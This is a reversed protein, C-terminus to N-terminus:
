YKFGKKKLDIFDQRLNDVWNCFDYVTDFLCSIGCSVVGVFYYVPYLVTLFLIGVRCFIKAKENLERTKM